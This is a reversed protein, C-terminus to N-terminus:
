GDNKIQPDWYIETHREQQDPRICHRVVGINYAFHPDKSNSFVKFTAFKPRKGGDSYVTPAYAHDKPDARRTPPPAQPDDPVLGGMIAKFRDTNFSYHDSDLKIVIFTVKGGHNGSASLDIDFDSNANPFNPGVGQPKFGQRQFLKDLKSFETGAAGGSQDGDAGDLVLTECQIYSGFDPGVRMLFTRSVQETAGGPVLDELKIMPTTMLRMPTTVEAVADPTKVHDNM